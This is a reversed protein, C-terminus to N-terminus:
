RAGAATPPPQCRLEELQEYSGRLWRETLHRLRESAARQKAARDDAFTLSPNKADFQAAQRMRELDAASYATGFFEPLSSTVASPLESYNVLRGRGLGPQALVAECVGALVRAGYEDFPIQSATANDWGFLGPDIMGPVTQAGPQRAHSVMIEVPDRYLFIWPVTPFVRHILPLLLAHWCDLKIFYHAEAAHRQRGLVAVIWQLWAIRQAASLKASQPNARLVFDLPPPESIVINQPLAALMQSVLTSGCRSLHFIFGSPPLVPFTAAVEGLLEIPTQHRFLLNCPHRLSLEITQEFLPDTFREEGLYGWDVMAGSEGWYLRIPVWDQLQPARTM